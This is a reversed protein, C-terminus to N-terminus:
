AAAKILRKRMLSVSIVILMWSISGGGGSSETKTTVVPAAKNITVVTQKSVQETEDSVTVKFELTQDTTFKPAIFSVTSDEAGSLTVTPGSIQEWMFSLEDEDEDVGTAKLSVTDGENFTEGHSDITVTPAINVQRVLVKVESTSSDRGDDVTLEFTLFEDNSVQPTTFSLIATNQGSLEVEADTVQVWRYTLTDNEEDTTASADLTIISGEDTERDKDVVITPAQNIVESTLVGPDKVMGNALGDADNDGGDKILLQICNDGATLGEHYDSSLPYPCNGDGDTIASYVGNESDVVFDFWGKTESYKRYISGEVIKNGASLPIVIPVSQGVETLGSVNFNTINSLTTFHEDAILDNVDVTANAATAGEATTVVDGLSLSLGNVTQMAATSDDIPLRSPNNDTDLYDSIGDNDSDSYGEDADSIGDNDSDTDVGLTVLSANVVIDKAVSVNFLESTNSESVSVMLGFTNTTLDEASFEFTSALGDVNLDVLSDNVSSWVIDHIDNENIDKVIATVTVVGNNTDVVSISKGNQQTILSLRPAFNAEDVTLESSTVFGLVANSASTIVVSYVDGDLADNPIEVTINSSIGEVIALQNAALISGSKILSYSIGVPYVAADGSLTVPLIVTSGPEVKRSQSLEVLPNINLEIKTEAINDSSDTASIPVLHVGSPYLTDGVAVANIYGDVLDYAQVKNIVDTIDNLAGIANITQAELDDFKAHTSDVIIVLQIATSVNGAHDTATWTVQSEGLPMADTATSVVTSPYANNDTVEPTVLEVSTFEGTAEVTVTTLATFIPAEDDGVADNLPESDNIDDIGDNDDDADSNNGIGDGDTDVSETEDLPFVDEIDIVNDNDDDTDANNGTGDGDTDVSEFADLPFTDIIDPVQDNDDDEDCVDGGDNAGDTNLQEPNAINPCNDESNEIGDNDDDLPLDERVTITGHHSTWKGIDSVLLIKYANGLGNLISGDFKKEGNNAINSAFRYWNRSKLISMNFGGSIDIGEPDDHLVYIDVSEGTVKAVDWNISFEYGLTIKDNAKPSFLADQFNNWDLENISPSSIATESITFTGRHLTWDGSDSILLLKYANGIGNLLAADFGIDGNNEMNTAFKYWNRSKLISLDVGDTTDIGVPDDHLVYINVNDGTIKNNDWTVRFAQGIVFKDGKTPSMLADKYNDLALSNIEPIPKQNLNIILNDIVNKDNSYVVLDEDLCNDTADETNAHCVVMNPANMDSVLKFFDTTVGNEKIQVVGSDLVNYSGNITEGDWDATFEGDSFHLKRLKYLGSQEDRVAGYMTSGNLGSETFSYAEGNSESIVITGRHTTWDGSNSVLLIKYANGIGNLLSADFSIDGSNEMNTAFKYWNRSKLISLDFGDVLDIGEPNDHLVYIDVKSGSVEDTNWTVRLPQGQYFQDGASPSTMADKYNSIQLSDISVSEGGPASPTGSVMVGMNSLTIIQNADTLPINDIYLTKLLTLSFLASLDNVETNHISILELSSLGSLLSLDSFNTGDLEIWNLTNFHRLPSWDIINTHSLYLTDLNLSNLINLDNFSGYEIHLRELNTLNSLENWNIINTDSVDLRTLNVSSILNLNEFNTGRVSLKVLDTYRSLWDWNELAINLYSVDISTIETFDHLRSIDEVYTGGINLERITASVLSLDSFTSNSVDLSELSLASLPQWEYEALQLEKLSLSTLETLPELLTLDNIKGNVIHLTTLRSLNAISSLEQDTFNNGSGWGIYLYTLNTMEQLRNLNMVEPSFLGLSELNPFQTLDDLNDVTGSKVCYVQTVLAVLTADDYERYVCERLVPENFNLDGLTLDANHAPTLPDPDESDKIGDGDTDPNTPDTGQQFEQLNTLGDTDSDLAADSDDYPNLGYQNEFDNTMGDNDFDVPNTNVPDSDEGDIIGDGDSDQNIPDTGLEYEALNSLGDGDSDLNADNDDFSSLGYADEFTDPMGDNDDDTDLDNSIGDNDNDNDFGYFVIYQQSNQYTLNVLKSEFYNKYNDSHPQLALERIEEKSELRIYFENNEDLYVKTDGVNIYEVKSQVDANFLKGEVVFNPLYRINDIYQVTKANQTNAIIELSVNQGFMEFDQPVVFNVENNISQGKFVLLPEDDFLLNIIINEIGISIGNKDIAGRINVTYVQNAVMTNQSDFSLSQSDSFVLDNVKYTFSDSIELQKQAVFGLNDGGRVVIKYDTGLSATAPFFCVQKFNHSSTIEKFYGQNTQWWYYEDVKTSFDSDVESNVNLIIANNDVGCLLKLDVSSQEITNIKIATANAEYHEPDFEYGISQSLLESTDIEDASKFKAETHQYNGDFNLQANQLFLLAEYVTLASDAELLPVNGTRNGQMLNNKIATNFYKWAWDAVKSRDENDTFDGLATSDNVITLDLGQIIMKVFEQRSVKDLPRFLKNEGSLVTENDADGLYYSLKLLSNFYDANRDVDAFPMVFNAMDANKFSLSKYSLFHEVMIVAEARSVETYINRNLLINDILTSYTSFSAKFTDLESSSPEVVDVNGMKLVNGGSQDKIYYTKNGASRPTCYAYVISSSSFDTTCNEADSITFATTLTLNEGNITIRESRVDKTLTPFNVSSVLPVTDTVIVSGSKLVVGGSQEKVYYTKSGASKPTCYAYVKFPSSFDTTCNEADSITFATSPTLNEGNIIIKESRVDKILTPFSVSSVTPVSDIVTVSGSKLINGGSQDKVYYTKSGASRPTCYVYVKSPSSFDTICNEADSITFVTSPTLNEGNIIIKESRVDKILTPFSVSSVTPVSDIVTVTGSKLINGGSQDKVYYTKSGASRPTCYAYVKSSSSFDTICNEAGSITFATNATLNTGNITIRGTRIDKTLTPFSVTSVIPTSDIVTVTGSKLINGGSQDKVYYTKSGASRPTCYAYVKSSNSFDTTCNEAGSITFATSATLNVGNITIRGTREGKILTPFSVTSVAPKAAIITFTRNVLERDFVGDKYLKFYITHTGLSNSAPLNVYWNTQGGQLKYVSSSADASIRVDYEPPLSGSLDAYVKYSEGVEVTSPSIGFISEAQSLTSLATALFLIIFKMLQFYKM